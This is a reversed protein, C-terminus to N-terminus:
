TTSVVTVVYLLSHSLYNLQVWYLICTTAAIFILLPPWCNCNWIQKKRIIVPHMWSVALIRWPWKLRERRSRQTVPVQAYMEVKSRYFHRYIMIRFGNIPQFLWLFGTWTVTGKIKTPYLRNNLFLFNIILYDRYIIYEYIADDCM